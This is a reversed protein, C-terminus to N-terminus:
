KNIKRWRERERERERNGNAKAKTEKKMKQARRTVEPGVEPQKRKSCM